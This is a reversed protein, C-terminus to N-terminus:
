ISNNIQVKGFGLTVKQTASTYDMIWSYVDADLLDDGDFSVAITTGNEDVTIEIPNTEEATDHKKEVYLEDNEDYMRFSYVYSDEGFLISTHFTLTQPFDGKQLPPLDIRGSVIYRM